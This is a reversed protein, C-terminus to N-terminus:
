FPLEEAENSVMDVQMENISEISRNGLFKFEKKHDFAYLEVRNMEEYYRNKKWDFFLSTEGRFSVGKPKAKEVAIVVENPKYHEGWSNKLNTHPRWINVWTMAKRLAAQGGAAQRATPMPYYSFEKRIVKEQAGPHFSLFVHKNNKKTFRRVDSMFSEIYLDQRAGFLMMKDHKLENYPEAMLTHIAMKSDKEEKLMEESLEEFSMAEQDGDQILFHHNVWDLINAREKETCFDGYYSTQYLPKGCYKHGLELMIEAVSGTEPSYIMHRKGYEHTQNMCLEFILESKGHGPAGLFCSFSGQKVTFIKDLGGFGTLEGRQDPKKCIDEIQDRVDSLKKIM